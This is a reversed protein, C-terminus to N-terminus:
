EIVEDVSPGTLPETPQEVDTVNCVTALNSAAALPAIADLQAQTLATPVEVDINVQKQLGTICNKEKTCALLFPKMNDPVNGNEDYCSLILADLEKMSQSYNFVVDARKAQRAQVIQYKVGILGTVQEPHKDITSEAFGAVRLAKAWSYGVVPAIITNTIYDDTALQAKNSIKYKDKAM